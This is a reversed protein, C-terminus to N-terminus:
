SKNKENSMPKEFVFYQSLKNLGCIIAGFVGDSFFDSDVKEFDPNNSILVWELKKLLQKQNYLSLWVGKHQYTRNSVSKDKSIIM